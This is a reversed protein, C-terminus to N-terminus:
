NGAANVKAIMEKIHKEAGFLNEYVAAIRHQKDLLYTVRRTFNILPISAKYLGAVKGSRDSLLEFPLKMAKKFDDHTAINDRSIGYVDIGLDQFFSFHDRFECAERTCGPTFDKPYFYIVVPLDKKDKSLSFDVGTTSPLTFDPAIDGVNLPM